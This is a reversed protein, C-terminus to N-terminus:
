ARWTGGRGRTAGYQRNPLSLRHSAFDSVVERVSKGTLEAELSMAEWFQDLFSCDPGTLALALTNGCACHRYIMTFPKRMAGRYDEMSHAKAHTSRIYDPLNPYKRGCLSCTKPFRERAADIFFQRFKFFADRSQVQVKDCCPDPDEMSDGNRFLLRRMGFRSHFHSQASNM